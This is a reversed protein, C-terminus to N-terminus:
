FIEPDFPQAVIPRPKGQGESKWWGDLGPHHGCCPSDAMMLPFSGWSTSVRKPAEQEPTVDGPETVLYLAKQVPPNVRCTGTREGRVVFHKCTSCTPRDSM